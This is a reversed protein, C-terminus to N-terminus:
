DRSGDVKPVKEGRRRIKSLVVAGVSRNRPAGGPWRLSEKCALKPDLVGAYGVGRTGPGGTGFVRGGMPEVVWWRGAWSACDRGTIGRNEEGMGWDWGKNPERAVVGDGDSATKKWGM